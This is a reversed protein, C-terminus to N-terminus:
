FPQVTAGMKFPEGLAKWRYLFLGPFSTTKSRKHM